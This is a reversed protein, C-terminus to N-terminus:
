SRNARATYSFRLNDDRATGQCSLWTGQWCRYRTSANTLTLAVRSVSRRSFPLSVAGDGRRGLRVGYWGIRGDRRHVMVSARSGRVRAPLDLRIRLRWTGRLTRGPRFVVHKNALHDLGLGQWGTGPRRPTLRHVAAVPAQPYHRGESYVRRAVRNLAGFDAFMRDLPVGRSALARRVAQM